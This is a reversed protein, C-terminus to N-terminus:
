INWKGSEEFKMVCKRWQRKQWQNMHKMNWSCLRYNMSIFLKNM